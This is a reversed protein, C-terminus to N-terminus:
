YKHFLNVLITTATVATTDDDEVRRTCGIGLGTTFEIGHTFTATESKGAEVFITMMATSTGVTPASSLNYLKVFADESDTNIIHWGFVVDQSSRILAGTGGVYARHTYLGASLSPRIQVAGIVNSGSPIASNIDVKGITNSGSPLAAGIAVSGIANSGAPLAAGVTVSPMSTIQVKGIVNSGTPLAPLATVEVTGIANSGTPLAAGITVNPLSSVSVSGIANSGAPLAPLSSVSVSGIANSGAPLAAGITVNPLSAIDVTGEVTLSSPVWSEISVPLPHATSVDEAEGDEGTQIKVRPVLTGLVDDAALLTGAGHPLVYNDPM